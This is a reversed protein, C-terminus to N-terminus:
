RLGKCFNMEIRHIGSFRFWYALKKIDIEENHKSHNYHNKGAHVKDAQYCCMRNVTGRSTPIRFIDPESRFVSILCNRDPIM